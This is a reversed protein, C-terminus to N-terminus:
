GLSEPCPENEGSAGSEASLGVLEEGVEPFGARSVGLVVLDIRHIDLTQTCHQAVHARTEPRDVPDDMRGTDRVPPGPVVLLEWIDLRNQRGLNQADPDQVLQGGAIVEISEHDERRRSGNEAAHAQVVISGGVAIHIRVNDVPLRPTRPPFAVSAADADAPGQPAIASHM